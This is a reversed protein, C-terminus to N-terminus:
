YQGIIGKERALNQCYYLISWGLIFYIISNLILLFISGNWILEQLSINDFIIKKIIEIGQTTPLTKSLYQISKPMKDLSLISGNLFLLINLMLYAFSSSKKFILGIGALILSFGVIGILTIIFVFLASFKLPIVIPCLLKLITIVLINECTWFVLGACFRSIIKLYFPTPSIYIQELIGTQSSETIFYSTDWIFSSAYQWIIYGVALPAIKEPVLIGSGDLLLAWFIFDAINMLTNILSTWKYYWYNLFILQVDNLILLPINLFYYLISM